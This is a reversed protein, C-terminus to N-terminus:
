QRNGNERALRQLHDMWDYSTKCHSPSAERNVVDPASETSVSVKTRQMGRGRPNIDNEMASHDHIILDIKESM